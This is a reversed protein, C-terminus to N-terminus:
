ESVLTNYDIYYTLDIIPELDDDITINNYGTLMKLKNLEESTLTCIKETTPESLVYYITVNNESLWTKLSDVDPAIDIPITIMINNNNNIDINTVDTGGSSTDTFHTSLLIQNNNINSNIDSNSLTFRANNTYTASLGYSESGNLIVKNIYKKVNVVGTKTNVILKDAYDGIKCLETDNLPITVVNTNTGDTLNLKLDGTINEIEQPYDPNPSAIGGTYPEYSTNSDDYVSIRFTFNEFVTTTYPSYIRFNTYYSCDSNTNLIVDETETSFYYGAYSLLNDSSDYLVYAISPDSEATYTGSIYEFKLYIKGTYSIQQKDGSDTAFLIIDNKSNKTGNLTISGNDNFTVDIGASNITTGSSHAFYPNFLNEGTTTDQQSVGEIELSKPKLNVADEVTIDSASVSSSPIFDKISEIEDAYDRFVDSDSESALKIKNKTENLYSLKNTTSM